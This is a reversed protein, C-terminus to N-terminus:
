VEQEEEDDDGSDDDITDSDLLETDDENSVLYDPESSEGYELQRRLIKDSVYSRLSGFGKSPFSLHGEQSPHQYVERIIIAMMDDSSSIVTATYENGGRMLKVLRQSHRPEVEGLYQHRKNEVILSSGDIRLNVKDGADVEALVAQPALKYLSAVGAKGTEEIFVQPEVPQFGEEVTVDAEGLHSLRRLNKEAITNYPDLERARSYAARALTYEGLELHARGLRNFADIDDPYNEVISKNAAVAERWRGEMALAIAQKSDNRVLRAKEETDHPM